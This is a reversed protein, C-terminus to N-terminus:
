SWDDPRRLGRRLNASYTEGTSRTRVTEAILARVEHAIADVSQNAAVAEAKVEEPGRYAFVGQTAADLALALRVYRAGPDGPEAASAGPRPGVACGAISIMLLVSLALRIM